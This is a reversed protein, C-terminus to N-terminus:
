CLLAGVKEKAFSLSTMMKWAIQAQPIIKILGSGEQIHSPTLCMSIKLLLRQGAIGVKLFLRPEPAFPCHNITGLNHIQHQQLQLVQSQSSCAQEQLLSFLGLPFLGHYTKTSANQTHVIVSGLVGMTRTYKLITYKGLAATFWNRTSTYIRFLNM